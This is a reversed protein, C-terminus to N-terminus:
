YLTKLTFEFANENGFAELWPTAHILIGKKKKIELHYEMAHIYWM